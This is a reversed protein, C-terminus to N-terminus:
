IINKQLLRSPCAATTRKLRSKPGRLFPRSVLDAVDTALSLKTFGPVDGPAYIELHMRPITADAQAFSHDDAGSSASIAQRWGRTGAMLM